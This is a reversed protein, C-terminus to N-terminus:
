SPNLLRRVAELDADRNERKLRGRSTHELDWPRIIVLRLGNAPIDTDRREDYIRRQEGRDVGSVTSRRNFFPVDGDHQRERYEIVIAHQKYYADVPLRVRKGSAGPDGRLWDFRHQRISTEGLVENCLSIVYSEDSSDRASQTRSTITAISSTQSRQGRFHNRTADIHERTLTWPTGKEAASRPFQERLFNRVSLPSVGLEDALESPTM